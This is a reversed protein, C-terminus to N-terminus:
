GGSSDGGIKEDILLEVAEELDDDPSVTMPGSTM